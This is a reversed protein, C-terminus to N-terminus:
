GNEAPFFYGSHAVWLYCSYVVVGFVLLTGGILLYRAVHLKKPAIVQAIVVVVTVIIFKFAIMGKMGYMDLIWDAIVNSERFQPFNLLLRTMIADLANALIFFCTETELPLHRRLWGKTEPNNSEETMEFKTRLFVPYGGM